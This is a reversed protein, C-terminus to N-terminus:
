AATKPFTGEDPKLFEVTLEIDETLPVVSFCTCFKIFMQAVKDSSEAIFQELLILINDHGKGKAEEIEVLSIVEEASIECKSYVSYTPFM